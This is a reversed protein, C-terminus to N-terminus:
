LQKEAKKSNIIDFLRTKIAAYTEGPQAKVHMEEMKAVIGAETKWWGPKSNDVPDNGENRKTENRSGKEEPRRGDPMQGADTPRRDPVNSHNRKIENIKRTAESDDKTINESPFPYKQKMLRLRQGFRPIFGYRAGDVEYIRLLDADFLHQLLTDIKTVPPADDFCRRRVFVPALSVCGFDDALLMLHLFLQRSEITVSWYRQSDLLGERIVRSPM